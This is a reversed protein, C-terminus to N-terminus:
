QLVTLLAAATIIAIKSVARRENKEMKETLAIFLPVNGLPDIVVFLAITSRILNEVFDAPVVFVPLSFPQSSSLLLIENFM